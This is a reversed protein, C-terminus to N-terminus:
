KLEKLDKLFNYFTIINKNYKNNNKLYKRWYPLIIKETKRLYDHGIKINKDKFYQGKKNLAIRLENDTILEILCHILKKKKLNLSNFISHLYEHAIYVINYHPWEEKHGYIAIQYNSYCRGSPLDPHTLYVTLQPMVMKKRFIDALFNNIFDINDEWEKKLKSQFIITEQYIKQFEKTKFINEYIKKILVFSRDIKYKKDYFLLPLLFGPEVDNELFIKIFLDDSYKEKINEVKVMLRRIDKNESYNHHKLISLLLFYKDVDFKVNM